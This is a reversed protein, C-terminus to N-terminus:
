NTKQSLVEGNQDIWLFSNHLPYGKFLSEYNLLAWLQDRGQYNEGIRM